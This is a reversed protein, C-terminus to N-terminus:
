MKLPKDIHKFLNNISKPVIRRVKDVSIYMKEAIQEYTYGDLLSYIVMQRAEENFIWQYILEEWEQRSYEYNLPTIKAM